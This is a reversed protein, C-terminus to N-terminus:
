GKVSPFLNSSLVFEVIRAASQGDGFPNHSAQMRAYEDPDRLLAAARNVIREADTGVLEVGGCEIAEPRETTERMVLLPKRLSPAEEQMGGSDTLILTARSMLWVFEPYPVPELLHINTADALRDRVPELVNPNPHVPYVFSTEPFMEALERLARCINALGAGFNERRHGTILVLPREGLEPFRSAFREPHQDIKDRTWLLADIITNGTICIREAPVKEARLNEAAQPTPACHLATAITAVRRNYEEPWPAQLNGTRLGAEVHIFPLKHYFCVMSSALVTTTDGQAFICDPELDAIAEELGTLCRATLEALSQGPRMVELHVDPQIEFHELIPILLDTHQGSLCVIPEVPIEPRRLAHIVPAMKIAEPRTGIVLLARPPPM